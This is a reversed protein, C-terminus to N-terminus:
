SPKTWNVTKTDKHEVANKSFDLINNGNRKNDQVKLIERNFGM